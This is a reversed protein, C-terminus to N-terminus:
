HTELLTLALVSAITRCNCVLAVRTRQALEDLSRMRQEAIPVAALLAVLSTQRAQALVKM